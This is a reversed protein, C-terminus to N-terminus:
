NSGHNNRRIEEIRFPNKLRNKINIAKIKGTIDLMRKVQVEIAPDIADAMSGDM